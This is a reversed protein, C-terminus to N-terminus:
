SNFLYKQNTDSKEHQCNLVLTSIYKRITLRLFLSVRLYTVYSYILVFPLKYINSVEFM